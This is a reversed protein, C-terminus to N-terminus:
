YVQFNENRALYGFQNVYNVETLYTQGKNVFAKCLKILFGTM